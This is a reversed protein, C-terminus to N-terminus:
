PGDPAAAVRRVADVSRRSVDSDDASRNRVSIRLVDRGQWRSGSMWATGDAILRATVERTHADDGFTVSAQTYVVENVVQVGDVEAIGAALARAHGAPRDVLDVVCQRGLSCM